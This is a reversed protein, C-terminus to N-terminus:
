MPVMAGVLSEGPSNKLFTFKHLFRVLVHVRVLESLEVMPAVVFKPSGLVQRYFDYGALKRSLPQASDVAM